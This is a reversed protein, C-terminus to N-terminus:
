RWLSTQRLGKVLPNVLWGLLSNTQVQLRAEVRAGLPFHMKQSADDLRVYALYGQEGKDPQGAPVPASSLEELTGTLRATEDRSQTMLRLVVQQGVKAKHAAQENLLLHAYVPGDPSVVFLPTGSAVPGRVAPAAAVTGAVLSTIAAESAANQKSSELDLATSTDASQVQLTVRQSKAQDVAQEANSLELQQAAVGQEAQRVTQIDGLYTREAAVAGTSALFGADILRRQQDLYRKSADVQLKASDLAAHAAALARKTGAVRAQAATITRDLEDEKARLMEATLAKRSALLQRERDQAVAGDAQVQAQRVVALPEGANVRDGLKGSVSVIDGKFPATLTVLGARPALVGSAPTYRTYSATSAFVALLLTAAGFAIALKRLSPPTFAVVEGELRVKLSERAEDRFLPTNSM